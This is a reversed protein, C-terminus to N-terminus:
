RRSFRAGYARSNDREVQRGLSPRSRSSQRTDSNTTSSQSSVVRANNNTSNIHPLARRPYDSQRHGAAAPRGYGRTGTTTNARSRTSANHGTRNQWQRYVPGPTAASNTARPGPSAFTRVNRSLQPRATATVSEHRPLAGTVTAPQRRRGNGQWQGAAGSYGRRYQYQRQRNHWNRFLFRNSYFNSGYYPHRLSSSRYSVVYRSNWNVLFATTVGWFFGSSFTYDPAYPYYYVPYATPYYDYVPTYHRVLVQEPQYSPIYIVDPQAPEIAINGGKEVVKQRADSNLNGAANARRRFRQVAMLLQEQQVNVAQGLRVTWDLNQDMMHLLAPYNLLAIISEDWEPDPALDADTARRDLFRAAQVVQVPNTSAPLLIGILDDPYLAFPGVLDELQAASLPAQYQAGGSAPALRVTKDDGLAADSLVLTALLLLVSGSRTLCQYRDRNSYQMMM